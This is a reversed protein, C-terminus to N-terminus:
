FGLSQPLAVLGVLGGIFLGSFCVSALVLASRVRGFRGVLRDGTRAGVIACVATLVLTGFATGVINIATQQLSIADIDETGGYGTAIALAVM